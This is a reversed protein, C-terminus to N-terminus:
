GERRGRMPRRGEHASLDLEMVEGNVVVNATEGGDFTITMEMERTESSGDVDTRTSTMSRSITGSIPWRSDSGPVPAVVEMFTVSGSMDYTRDGKDTHRSRSVESTGVGNATRHIEEGELGTFTMQRERDIVASWDDREVQGAVITVVDIRETTVEDYEAQQNGSADFFAETTTGSEPGGFGRGGGPPGHGGAGGSGPGGRVFGFPQTWMTVDEVTADAAVIAMDRLALDDLADLGSTESCGVMALAAVLIAGSRAKGAADCNM